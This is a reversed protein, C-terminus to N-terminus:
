ERGPLKPKGSPRPIPKTSPVVGPVNKAPTRTTPDVIHGRNPPEPPATPQGVQRRKWSASRAAEQSGKGLRLVCMSREVLELEDGSAHTVAQGLFGSEENTDLFREWTVDEQGALVFKV